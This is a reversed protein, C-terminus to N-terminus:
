GKKSERFIKTSALGLFPGQKVEIMSTEELMELEHGGRLFLLFDGAHMTVEAIQKWVEDYVTVKAKGKRFYLFESIGETMRPNRPHMHPQVHYGKERRMVGLQFEDEDKTVFDVGSPDCDARIFIAYTQGNAEIRQVSEVRTNYGTKARLSARKM